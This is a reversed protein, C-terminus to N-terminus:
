RREGLLASPYLEPETGHIELFQREADLRLKEPFKGKELALVADTLTPRGVLLRIDNRLEDFDSVIVHAHFRSEANLSEVRTQVLNDRANVGLTAWVSLRVVM